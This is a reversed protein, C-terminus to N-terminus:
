LGAGVSIYYNQEADLALWGFFEALERWLRAMFAWFRAVVPDHYPQMLWWEAAVVGLMLAARLVDGSDM